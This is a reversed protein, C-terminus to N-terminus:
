FRQWWFHAPPRVRTVTVVLYQGPGWPWPAWPVCFPQCELQSVDCKRLTTASVRSVRNEVLRRWSCQGQVESCVCVCVCVRKRTYRCLACLHSLCMCLFCKYVRVEGRFYWYYDSPNWPFCCTILLLLILEGTQVQPGSFSSFFFLYIQM